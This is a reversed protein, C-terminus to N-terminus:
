SDTDEFTDSNGFLVRISDMRHHLIRVVRMGKNDVQYFIHYAKFTLMYFGTFMGSFVLPHGSRPFASKDRILARMDALYKDTTLRDASVAYVDLWIQRLDRRAADSYRLVTSM